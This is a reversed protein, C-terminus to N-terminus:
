NSLFFSYILCTLFIVSIPLSLVVEFLRLVSTSVRTGYPPRKGGRVFFFFFFLLIFSLRSTSDRGDILSWEDSVASPCFLERFGTKGTSFAPSFVLDDNGPIM